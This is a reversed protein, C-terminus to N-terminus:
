GAYRLVNVRYGEMYWLWADKLRQMATYPSNGFKTEIGGLVRGNADSVEVDIRRVGFPTSKTVEIDAMRNPMSDMKIAVEDRWADGLGKNLALRDAKTVTAADRTGEAAEAARDAKLALQGAEPARTALRVGEADALPDEPGTLVIAAALFLGAGVGLDFWIEEDPSTASLPLGTFGAVVGMLFNGVPSSVFASVSTTFNTWVQNVASTVYSWAQQVAGVAQGIDCGIDLFGCMGSPDASNLPNNAVYAYPAWTSSLKPDRSLFQATAPDYYRARLYYLGSEADRYQGSFLFPNTVSGTQSTINGYADYNYSAVITGTTDSLIRTSGLQDQQYYYVTSGSVQELPLGGPGSVYYTSGDQMLVPLGDVVDWVFAESQANVTKSVRLGAGNYSYSNGTGYSMLRNQQNWTLNSAGASTRRGAADYSYITTTGGVVATSTLEDANDYSSNTTTSGNITQTLRGGADYTYTLGAGSTLQNLSNYGYSASNESTVQSNSDRGYTLSLITNGSIADSISTLQDANNYGMTAVVGNPYTIGTLNSNSDYAFQTTNSLWDVISALRGAADYQRLVCLSPPSATCSGGPYAISTVRGALDYAYSVSHGAGDTQQTLRGLSDWVNTTTGTGDVMTLVRADTDYMYSVSPTVGDSYSVSTLRGGSDYAYTTTQNLPNVTTSLRNAADYNYTTTRTLADASTLQRGLADYSYSALTHNLGDTESLVHGAGDYGTQKTTANSTGYGTTSSTLRGDLDYSFVDVNGNADTSRILHGAVDYQNVAQHTLPDTITLAQGASNYTYTTTYAAPNGGTVNGLPAVTSTLRGLSDYVFTTKNSVPDTSSTPYGNADYTYTWTRNTPDTMATIDGQQGDGYSLSTTENSTTGLLPTSRTLLNGNADYTLTTTIGQPDQMTLPESLANYTFTVKNGLSDTTTLVNTKTDYTATSTEGNPNTVASVGLSAPDYAYTTTQAMSTDASHVVDLPLGLAYDYKDQHGLPTTVTTTFLPWASTYGYSSSHGVPDTQQSVRGNGDYVNVLGNCGQTAGCIPGKATLMRHSSDYTFTTVGGLVDTVQTLSLYTTPDSPNTGYQYGVTRTGDNVSAVLGNTGYVFTLQRGAPDTVTSLSGSVYALTTTYGNPDVEQILQGASNFVLKGGHKDTLTYNGGSLVLATSVYSPASYSSSQNAFFENGGLPDYLTVNGSGDISLHAGYSNAWGYGFMGLSSAAFSNYTRQLSLAPGRGPISLDTARQCFNGSGTNVGDCEDALEGPAIGPTLEFPQFLFASDAFWGVEWPNTVASFLASNANPSSDPWNGWYTTSYPAFPTLLEGQLKGVPYNDFNYDVVTHNPDAALDAAPVTFTPSTYVAYNSIRFGDFAAQRLATEDYFGAPADVPIAASDAQSHVLSGNAYMRVTTGDFDVAIYVPSNGGLLSGLTFGDTQQTPTYRGGNGFGIAGNHPWVFSVDCCNNLGHIDGVNFDIGAQPTGWQGSPDLLGWAMNSTTTNTTGVAWIWGEITWQALSTHPIANKSTWGEYYIGRAPNGGTAIALFRDMGPSGNYGQISVAASSAAPGTGYKNVAAVTFFVSAGSPLYPINASTTSGTVSFPALSNGGTTLPTITYSTIPAGRLTPPTWSVVASGVGALATVNTPAAPVGAGAASWHNSVDTATLVHSYASLEDLSGNFNATAVHTGATTSLSGISQSPLAQGDVYMTLNSGDFTIDVMHWTGNEV